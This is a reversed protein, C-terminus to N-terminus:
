LTRAPEIVFDGEHEDVWQGGPEDTLILRLPANCPFDRIADPMFPLAYCAGGPKEWVDCGISSVRTVQVELRM